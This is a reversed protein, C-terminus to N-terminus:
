ISDGELGTKESTFLVRVCCLCFCISILFKGDYNTVQKMSNRPTFADRLTQQARVAQQPLFNQGIVPGSDGLEAALQQVSLELKALAKAAVQRSRAPVDLLVDLQREVLTQKLDSVDRRSAILGAVGGNKQHVGLKELSEQIVRIAAPQPDNVRESPLTLSYRLIASSDTVLYRRYITNETLLNKAHTPPVAVSTTSLLMFLTLLLTSCLKRATTTKVATTASTTDINLLKLIATAAYWWTSSSFTLDEKCVNLVSDVADNCSRSGSPVIISSTHQQQRNQQQQQEQEQQEQQEQQGHHHFLEIFLRHCRSPRRSGCRSGTSVAATSTSVTDKRTTSPRAVCSFANTRSSRRSSEHAAAPFLQPTRLPSSQSVPHSQIFAHIPLPTIM